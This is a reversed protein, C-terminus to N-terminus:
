TLLAQLDRTQRLEFAANNVAEELDNEWSLYTQRLLTGKIFSWLYHHGQELKMSRFNHRLLWRTSGIIEDEARRQAEGIFEELLNSPIDSALALNLTLAFQLNGTDDTLEQLLDASWDTSQSNSQVSFPNEITPFVTAFTLFALGCEWPQRWEVNASLERIDDVPAGALILSLTKIVGRREAHIANLIQPQRELIGQKLDIFDDRSQLLHFTYALLLPHKDAPALIKPFFNWEKYSSFLLELFDPMKLKRSIHQAKHFLDVWDHLKYVFRMQSEQELAKIAFHKAYDVQECEILAETTAILARLRTDYKTTSTLFGAMKEVQESVFDKGGMPLLRLWNSILQLNSQIELLQYLDDRTKDQELLFHIFQSGQFRTVHGLARAYHVANDLMENEIYQMEWIEHTSVRQVFELAQKRSAEHLGLVFVALRGFNAERIAYVAYNDIDILQALHRARPLDIAAAIRFLSGLDTLDDAQYDKPLRPRRRRKKSGGPQSSARSNDSEAEIKQIYIDLAETAISLDVKSIAFLGNVFHLTSKEKRFKGLVEKRFLSPSDIGILELIEDIKIPVDLFHSLLFGVESLNSHRRWVDNLKKILVDDSLLQKTLKERNESRPDTAALFGRIVHVYNYVFRSQIDKTFDKYNLGEVFYNALEQSVQAINYLSRGVMSVRHQDRQFDDLIIPRNVHACAEKALKLSLASSFQNIVVAVENYHEESNILLFIEERLKYAFSVALRRNLRSLVFLDNSLTFLNPDNRLLREIVWENQNSAELILNAALKPHLKHLRLLFSALQSFESTNKLAELIKHKPLYLDLYNYCDARNLHRIYECLRLWIHMELPDGSIQEVKKEFLSSIV